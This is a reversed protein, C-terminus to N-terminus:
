FDSILMRNSVYFASLLTRPTKRFVANIIERGLNPLPCLPHTGSSVGGYVKKFWGTFVPIRTGCDFSVRFM